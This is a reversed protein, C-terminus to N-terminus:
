RGDRIQSIRMHSLGTAQAAVRLSVGGALADRVAKERRERAPAVIQEAKTKAREFAAQAALLDKMHTDAETTMIYLYGICVHRDLTGQCCAPTPPMAPSLRARV